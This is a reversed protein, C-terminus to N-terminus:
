GGRYAAELKAVDLKVQKMMEEAVRKAKVPDKDSMLEILRTPVIQWRLGYRDNIWGCATPTGGNELIATWYKDLEQQSTCNVTFSVADNFDHHPGATMAQFPQGFLTFHVIRVSGAPGSPSEAPMGWVSDIRSDPFISTYFKAAEEAEKAYWLSPVIKHTSKSM